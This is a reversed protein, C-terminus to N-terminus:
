AMNEDISFILSTTEDAAIVFYIYTDQEILMGKGLTFEVFSDGQQIYAKYNLEDLSQVDSWANFHIDYYLEWTINDENTPGFRVYLKEDPNLTVTVEEGFNNDIGTYVGCGHTTCFGYDDVNHHDCEIDESLTIWMAPVVGFNTSDVNGSHMYGAADFYFVFGANSSNTPSRLFWVGNGGNNSSTLMVAGMARSYDSTLMERAEDYGRSTSFGYKSNTAERYSLLFIKDETDECAYPNTNNNTSYASNDVTTTLIIESQLESFAIDYFTSNLWARVESYKYNSAYTGDPAENSVTYYKGDSGEYYDSQYAMGAIISDCLIFATEGDTSLIRWRIPEVKFYYVTGSVVTVNNTFTYGSDYPTATVAAYYNGDSGLYYGRSDQTSTITVDDAKITQPYEGFLIYSGEENPTGDKDCRVYEKKDPVSPKTDESLRIQLAPVVGSSYSNNHGDHVYGDDSVVLALFTYNFNPSRLWWYANGYYSSSTSMYVGMARSYDSAQMRRAIDYEYRSFSFGYASNTVDRCSLLFIKDETDECVNPNSSYGTSYASNDVTTTLIIERQLETFATKYFTSNLWARVDSYKYNNVYTGDPAGNATTYYKDTSRDYTYDSQYAMDAIVSDCLIFATEGDISLIRWRIPDVKFYYVTGSVITANNTFTYGSTYPTATVAAYYNGDSGLYYGRSDTTTTITVDDAKITQPYEGFFIYDGNENPTGDKDSRIYQKDNSDKPEIAGCRTCTGNVYDHGLADIIRQGVFVENCVACYKGETLGTKACTPAVAKSVVETHELVDTITTERSLEEGCTSCYVVSDYSGTTTCTPAVNNEIVAEAETHGLAKVITQAILVENCASCHKGETLGTATCTPAVAADVVVTHGLADIVTQAIIVEECDICVEGETLGPETCTASKAPQTNVNTHPCEADRIFGCENCEEDYKDDYSHNVKPTEIQAVLVENCVSCHKGETLGTATCTSSVATDVTETHGLADVVTQVVITGNCVSCHKGETLGAMTCTPPVAADIVETHALADVVTQAVLIENCVFCHKGETLGTTTCTPSVGEDILVDHPLKPITENQKEGCACYRVKVGANACTANETTFWEGFEHTHKTESDTNPTKNCSAMCM